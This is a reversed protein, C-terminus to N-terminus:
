SIPFALVAIWAVVVGAAGGLAVWRLVPLGRSLWLAPSLGAVVVLNAILAFVPRDALGATIVYVATAVLVAVFASIILGPGWPTPEGGERWEEIWAWDGRQDLVDREDIEGDEDSAPSVMEITDGSAIAVEEAGSRRDRVSTSGAAAPEVPINM